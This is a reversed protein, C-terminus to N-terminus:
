KGESKKLDDIQKQLDQVKAILIGIFQTYDVFMTHKEDMEDMFFIASDEIGVDKLAEEAEQAIIGNYTKDYSKEKYHFHCPKLKDFAELYASMDYDIDKKLRRDSGANFISKWRHSSDGLYTANDTNPVVREGRFVVKGSDAASSADQKQCLVQSYVTGNTGSSRRFQILAGNATVAVEGANTGYILSTKDDILGKLVKGQYASLADSTSNSTLNNQVPRWTNTDTTPPTYGLANTVNAKSLSITGSSVSINSGVKVGGLTSSTATPLSYANAGAAIGDLKKKDAASMLGNASQSAASTSAKGNLQTQIASTVGSLYGLETATVSSNAIKGSSNTVMARNATLNSSVVSTAAGTIATQKGNIQTQISSTVGSLYGLETSSVSSSAVKGSSNSVLARSANLNNSAITSAGGTISAQKGNLQTQIASTVGSLYGLETSTVSSSAVKGSGTSVLARNENLNSTVISSAGGTVTPQKANLQTQVSSTVGSLYGLETSTVSSVSVKGSGNSIVARNATLNSSTITTAAGTITDQKTSIIALDDETPIKKWAGWSDNYFNRRYQKAGSTLYETVIQVCGNSTHPLVVMSFASVTPSNSLSAAIASTKCQYVAATKLSNLNQGNTITTASFTQAIGLMGDITDWNTGFATIDAPDSLSPKILNFRSTTTSM